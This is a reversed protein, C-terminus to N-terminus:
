CFFATASCALDEKLIEEYEGDMLEKLFAPFVLVQEEFFFNAQQLPTGELILLKDEM